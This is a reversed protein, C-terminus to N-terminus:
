PQKKMQGQHKHHDLIKDKYEASHRMAEFEVGELHAIRWEQSIKLMTDRGENRADPQQVGEESEQESLDHYWELTRIRAYFDDMTAKHNDLRMNCARIAEGIIGGHNGSVLAEIRPIRSMFGRLTRVSTCEEMETLRATLARQGERLGQADRLDAIQSVRTRVTELNAQMARMIDRLQEVPEEHASASAEHDHEMWITTHFMFPDPSM